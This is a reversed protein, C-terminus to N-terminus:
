YKRSASHFPFRDLTGCCHACAAGSRCLMFCPRTFHQNHSHLHTFFVPCQNLKVPTMSSTDYLLLPQQPTTPHSTAAAAQRPAAQLRGGRQRANFNFIRLPWRLCAGSTLDEREATGVDRLWGDAMDLALVLTLSADAKQKSIIRRNTAPRMFVMAKVVSTKLSPDPRHVFWTVSTMGDVCM